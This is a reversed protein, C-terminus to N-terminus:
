SLLLKKEWWKVTPLSTLWCKKSLDERQSWGITRPKKLFKGLKEIDIIDDNTEDNTELVFCGGVKHQDEKKGRAEETAECGGDKGSKGMAAVWTDIEPDNMKPQRFKRKRCGVHKGGMNRAIQWVSRMDKKKWAEDM